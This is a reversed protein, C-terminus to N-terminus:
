AISFSKAEKRARVKAVIAKVVCSIIILLVGVGLVILGNLLWGKLLLGSVMGILEGGPISSLAGGVLISGILSILAAISGSVTLTIGVDGTTRIMSWNNVRALLITLLLVVAWLVGTVWYSLGYQLGYYVVPIDKKLTRVDTYDLVGTDEITEAVVQITYDSMYVGLVDDILERDKKLLKEIDEVDMAATRTDMRIDTVCLALNKCIGDILASDAALKEVDRKRLDVGEERAIEVIMDVMTADDELAGSLDIAPVEDLNQLREEFFNQLTEASTANRLGGLVTAIWSFLFVVICLIVALVTQGASRPRRVRPTKSKKPKAEAKVEPKTEPKMELNVEPKMELKMEPKVEPNVEPNVGAPVEATVEPEAEVLEETVVNEVPQIYEPAWEAEQAVVNDVQEAPLAEVPTGCKRCFRYGEGLREGCNPCFIVEM